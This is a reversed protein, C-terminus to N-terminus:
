KTENSLNEDKNSYKFVILDNNQLNLSSFYNRELRMWINQFNNFNSPSERLKLRELEEEKTLILFLDLDSKLDIKNSLSYTGEIITLRSKNKINVEIEKNIQQEKCSFIGYKFSSITKNILLNILNNSIEKNFRLYDINGNLYSDLKDLNNFINEKNNKPLYFDDIHIIDVKDKLNYKNKLENLSLSTKGSAAFGDIFVIVNEKTHLLEDIYKYIVNIDKNIYYISLDM